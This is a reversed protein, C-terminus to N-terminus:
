RAIQTKPLMWQFSRPRTLDPQSCSPFFLNYLVSLFLVCLLVWFLFDFLRRPFILSLDRHLILYFRAISWIQVCGIGKEGRCLMIVFRWGVFGDASREEVETLVLRTWVFFSVSCTFLVGFLLLLFIVIKWRKEIWNQECIIAGCPRQNITPTRRPLLDDTLLCYVLCRKSCFAFRSM